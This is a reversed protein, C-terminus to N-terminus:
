VERRSSMTHYLMAPMAKRFAWSTWSIPGKQRFSDLRRTSFGCREHYRLGFRVFKMETAQVFSMETARLQCPLHRIGSSSRLDTQLPIAQSTREPDHRTERDHLRGRVFADALQLRFVRRFNTFECRGIILCGRARNFFIISFSGFLVFDQRANLHACVFSSSSQRRQRRRDIANKNGEERRRKRGNM